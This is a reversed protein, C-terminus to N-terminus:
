ASCPSKRRVRARSWNSMASSLVTPIAGVGIYFLYDRTYQELNQYNQVLKDYAHM